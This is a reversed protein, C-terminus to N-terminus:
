VRHESALVAFCCKPQAGHECCSPTAQGVLEGVLSELARCMEPRRSVVASLPCGSGRLRLGDATQEVVIDAGLSVLIVAAAEVRATMDGPAPGGLDHALKKGVRRLVADRQAEPLEDVLVDILTALTPAYARSFLPAVDPALEYRIAPKGAGAGRRVGDQRVLRDRELASLHSRVANDTVGLRQALEDVTLAGRRLLTVVQGRTSEWFRQGLEIGNM